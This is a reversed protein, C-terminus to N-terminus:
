DATFTAIVELHQSQPFQDFGQLTQLKFGATKLLMADKLFSEPYCSVYILCKPQSSQDTLLTEIFSGLGGRPPDVLLGKKNLDLDNMSRSSNQFDSEIIRINLSQGLPKLIYEACEINKKLSEVAWPDNEIAVVENRSLALPLTFNGIGSGLEVWNSIQSKEALEVVIRVLDRNTSFSPQTFSAVQSNLAFRQDKYYTEFWEYSSTKSLKPQQDQWLLQKRKQGVEVFALSSLKKLWTKENFLFKIDENSFDLWIGKKGDPAIRLRISGRKIPPLIKRFEKLFIELAPNMMPCGELDVLNRTGKEFLGLKAGSDEKMFTLDVRDRAKWWAPTFVNQKSSPSLAPQAFGLEKAIRELIDKKFQTQEPQSFQIQDCGGCIGAVPCIIAQAQM